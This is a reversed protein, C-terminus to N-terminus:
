IQIGKADMIAEAEDITLGSHILGMVEKYLSTEKWRKDAEDYISRLDFPKGAAQQEKAVDAVIKQKWCLGCKEYDKHELFALDTYDEYTGM